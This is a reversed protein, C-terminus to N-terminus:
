GGRIKRTELFSDNKLGNGNENGPRMCERLITNIMNNAIGGGCQDLIGGHFSYVRAKNGV